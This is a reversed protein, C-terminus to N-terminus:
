SVSEAIAKMEEYPLEATIYYTYIGDTWMIVTEKKDEDTYELFKGRYESVFVDSLM